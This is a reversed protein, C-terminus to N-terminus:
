GDLGMTDQKYFVRKKPSSLAISSCRDLSDGITRSMRGAYSATDRDEILLYNITADDPSETRPKNYCHSLIMLESIM